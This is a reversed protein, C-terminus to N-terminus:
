LLEWKNVTERLTQAVLTINLFCDRIVTHELTSGSERRQPETHSVKHQPRKIWKSKLKAWPPLYSDIKM